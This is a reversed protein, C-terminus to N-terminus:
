KQHQFPISIITINDVGGLYNTQNILARVFSAEDPFKQRLKIIESPPFSGKDIYKTFGDSALILTQDPKLNLLTENANRLRVSGAEPGMAQTVIGRANEDRQTIETLSQNRSDLVLASSDGVSLIHYENPNKNSQEALVLTSAGAPIRNDVEKLIEQTIYKGQSAFDFLTSTISQSAIEGDENGGVGDAIAYVDHNGQLQPYDKQIYILLSDENTERRLGINTEGYPKPPSQNLIEKRNPNLFKDLFM